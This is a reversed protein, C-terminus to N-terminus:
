YYHHGSKGRAAYPKIKESYYKSFLYYQRVCPVVSTCKALGNERRGEKM